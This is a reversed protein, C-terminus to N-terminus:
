FVWVTQVIFFGLMLLAMVGLSIFTLKKLKSELTQGKGRNYFTDANGGLASIGNSNGPQVLVVVIIFIALLASGVVCVLNIANYVFSQWDFM